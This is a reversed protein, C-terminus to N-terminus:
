DAEAAEEAVARKAIAEAEAKKALAEAKAEIGSAIEDSTQKM